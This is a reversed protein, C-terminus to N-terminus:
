HCFIDLAKKFLKELEYFTSAARGIDNILNCLNERNIGHMFLRKTDIRPAHLITLAIADVIYPYQAELSFLYSIYDELRPISIRYGMIDISVKNSICNLELKSHAVVVYVVPIIVPNIAVSGRNRLLEVLQDSYSYVGLVYSLANVIGEIDKGSVIIRIENIIRPIGYFITALDNLVISNEGILELEHQIKWTREIIQLPFSGEM